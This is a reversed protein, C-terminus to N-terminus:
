NWIWWSNSKGTRTWIKWNSLFMQDLWGWTWDARSSWRRYTILTWFIEAWSVWIASASKFERVSETYVLKYTDTLELPTPNWNRTDLWVYDVKRWKQYIFDTFRKAWGIIEDWTKHVYDLENFDTINSKTHTHNWESITWATNWFNKNFWTNKNFTDEKKDLLRSLDLEVVSNDIKTITLINEDPSGVIGKFEINKVATLDIFKDLPMVVYSLTEPAWNDTFEFLLDDVTVTLEKAQMEVLNAENVLYPTKLSGTISQIFDNVKQAIKQYTDDDKNIWISNESGISQFWDSSLTSSNWNNIINVM